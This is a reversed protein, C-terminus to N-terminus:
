SPLRKSDSRFVMAICFVKTHDKATNCKELVNGKKKCNCAKIGKCVAAASNHAFLLLL